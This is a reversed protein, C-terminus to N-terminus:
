TLRFMSFEDLSPIHGDDFLFGKRGGDLGEVSFFQIELNGLALKQFENNQFDDSLHWAIQKAFSNTGVGEGGIPLKGKLAENQDNVLVAIQYATLFCPEKDYNLSGKYKPRRLINAVVPRIENWNEM